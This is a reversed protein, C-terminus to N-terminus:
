CPSHSIQFPSPPYGISWRGDTNSHYSSQITYWDGGPSQARQFPTINYFGYGGWACSQAGTGVGIEGGGLILDADVMYHELLQESAGNIYAAWVDTWTSTGPNLVTYRNNTGQALSWTFCRAEYNTDHADAYISSKYGVETFTWETGPNCMGDIAVGGTEAFGSQIWGWMHYGNWMYYGTTNEADTRMVAFNNTPPNFDYSPALITARVGWLSVHGGCCTPYDLYNDGYNNVGAAARSVPLASMAISMAAVIPVWRTAIGVTVVTVM